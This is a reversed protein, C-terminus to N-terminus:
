RQLLASLIESSDMQKEQCGTQHEGYWIIKKLALYLENLKPFHLIWCLMCPQAAM